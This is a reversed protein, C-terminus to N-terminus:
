QNRLQQIAALLLIAFPVFILLQQVSYKRVYHKDRALDDEVEMRATGARSIMVAYALLPLYNVGTLLLYLGLFEPDGYELLLLGVGLIVPTGVGFEALIFRPGHLTIDLAVLKRVNIIRGEV